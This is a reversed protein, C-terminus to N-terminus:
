IAALESLVPGLRAALAPDTQELEGLLAGTAARLARVLEPRDLGRV